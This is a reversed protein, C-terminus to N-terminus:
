NNENSSEIARELRELLTQSPVFFVNWDLEQGERSFRTRCIIVRESTVAQSMISQELVSAGYDQIFMPPSPVLEQDLLDTFVNIYACGLINGTECLASQELASWQPDTNVDRNLLSAAMRRGNEEDFTLILQGSLDGELTLVVMTLLDFGMDLEGVVEELPIDRVEDLTLMIEGSTWRSMASSASRTAAAFLQNFLSLSPDVLHEEIM